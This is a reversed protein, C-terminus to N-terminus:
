KSLREPASEESNTKTVAGHERTESDRQPSSLFAGFSGVNEIPDGPTPSM